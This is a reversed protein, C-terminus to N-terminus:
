PCLVPELGTMILFGVHGYGNGANCCVQSAGDLLSFDSHVHLPVYQLEEDVSSEIVAPEQNKLVVSSCLAKWGHGRSVDVPVPLKSHVPFFNRNSVLFSWPLLSRSTPASYSSVRVVNVKEALLLRNAYVSRWNLRPLEM